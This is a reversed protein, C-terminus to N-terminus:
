IIQVQWTQTSRDVGPLKQTIGLWQSRCDISLSPQLVSSSIYMYEQAFHNNHM